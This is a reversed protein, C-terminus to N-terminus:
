QTPSKIMPQTTSIKTRELSPGSFLTPQHKHVLPEMLTIRINNSRECILFECFELNAIGRFAPLENNSLILPLSSESGLLYLSGVSSCPNPNESDDKAVSKRLEIAEDIKKDILGLGVGTLVCAVFLVYPNCFFGSVIRHVSYRGTDRRM